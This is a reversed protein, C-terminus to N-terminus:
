LHGTVNASTVQRLLKPSCDCYAVGAGARYQEIGQAPEWKNTLPDYAEVSNLYNCGDHGGVAYLRGGLASVGVGGRCCSMNAVRTWTNTKVDYKEVCDLPSNDDFGGVVYIYGDLVAVGAGARRKCMPAIPSWRNLYPDYRECSDLSSTGDNGGLAYLQGKLTAVGVGGRPTEMPAIFSWNDRGPDYREVTNFCTADDLGGVAYIVDGSCALAIGRRLTEMQSISKWTNSRPDFMEGSRLHDTGDHGGVAYLVGNYSCVGVHRRRTTMDAVPFWKDQRPDYCEISKFPDGSAGRGGVCFLVGAYSKRPRSRETIQIEPVISALSMRYSKAEDVFDRCEINKRILDDKEVKELLFAPEMLPFKIKSLLSSLHHCRHELDHKIWTLVAVFVQEENDVNLDPSSVLAALIDIPMSLFEDTQSVPIFNDRIYNDTTKILEVRNHAEAFSRVEICNSPHLHSQMFRSCANAVAEIQLISAAYLISQVNDTNLRIHSTYAFQILKEMAEEDIDKITISKETAEAMRSNFMARFYQSVCALVLRHCHFHKNGITIEVDCFTQNQYFQYLLDWNDKAFSEAVFDSALEDM